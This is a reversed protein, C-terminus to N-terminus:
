VIEVGAAKSEAQYDRNIAAESDFSLNPYRAELKKINVHAVYLLMIGAEACALLLASVYHTLENTLAVEDLEKGYYITKKLRDVIRSAWVVARCTSTMSPFPSSPDKLVLEANAVVTNFDMGLADAMVASYWLCDGMEGIRKGTDGFPLELLEGAEGSVGMACHGIVGLKTDPKVTRLALQQYHNFDALQIEQTMISGFLDNVKPQEGAGFTTCAVREIGVATDDAFRYLRWLGADPVKGLPEWCYELEGGAAECESAARRHSFGIHDIGEMVSLAVSFDM